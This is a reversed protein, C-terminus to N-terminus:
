MNIYHVKTLKMEGNGKRVGIEKERSYQEILGKKKERNQQTHDASGIFSEHRLTPLLNIKSFSLCHIMVVGIFM